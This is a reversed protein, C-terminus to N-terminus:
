LWDVEHWLCPQAIVPMVAIRDAERRRLIAPLEDRVVVESTLYDPSVLIIVITAERIAEEAQRLWGAGGPQGNAHWGTLANKLEGVSLHALLRDKLKEDKISCSIFVRPRTM